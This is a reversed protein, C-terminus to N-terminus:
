VFRSEVEEEAVVAVVAVFVVRGDLRSMATQNMGVPPMSMQWKYQVSVFYMNYFM